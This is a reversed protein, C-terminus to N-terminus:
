FAAGIRMQLDRPGQVDEGTQKRKLLRDKDQYGPLDTGAWQQQSPGPTSTDFGSYRDDFCEM